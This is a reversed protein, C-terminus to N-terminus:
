QGTLVIRVTCRRHSIGAALTEPIKVPTTAAAQGAKISLGPQIEVAEPEDPGLEARQRKLTARDERIVGEAETKLKDVAIGSEAPLQHSMFWLPFATKAASRFARTRATKGPNEMGIPDLHTGPQGTRSLKPVKYEGAHNAAIFPRSKDKRYLRVLCVAPADPMCWRARQKARKANEAKNLRADENLYEIDFGDYEPHAAAVDMWLEATDYLNGGLVEWHRLPDTGLELAYRATAKRAPESLDKGWGTESLAVAARGVIARQRNEALQKFAFAREQFTTAEALIRDLVSEQPQSEQKTEPKNEPATV